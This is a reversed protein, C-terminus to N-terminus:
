QDLHELFEAPSVAQASEPITLRMREASITGLADFRRLYAILSSGDNATAEVKYPRHLGDFAKYGAYRLHYVLQGDSHSLTKERVESSLPDITVRAQFSGSRGTLINSQDRSGAVFGLPLPGDVIEAVLLRLDALGSPLQHNTLEGSTKRDSRPAYATFSGDRSILASLVDHDVKTLLVRTRGDAAHWLNLTVSTREGQPDISTLFLAAAVAQPQGHWAAIALPDAQPNAVPRSPCGALAVLALIGVALRWGGIAMM